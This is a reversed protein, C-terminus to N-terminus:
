LNLKKFQKSKVMGEVEKMFGVAGEKTKEPFLTENLIDVKVCSQKPLYYNQYGNGSFRFSFELAEYGPANLKEDYGGTKDLKQREFMILGEITNYKSFWVYKLYDESTECKCLIPGLSVKETGNKIGVIGSKECSKYENLLVEAWGKNVLINIPFLCCYNESVLNIILNYAKSLTIPIKVTKLVWKKQACTEKLYKKLKEEKSGNDLIYVSVEENTKALLNEICYRTQYYNNNLVMCIGLNQM